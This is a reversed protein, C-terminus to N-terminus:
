TQISMDKLTDGNFLGMSGNKVIAINLIAEVADIKVEIWFLHM